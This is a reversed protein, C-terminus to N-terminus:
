GTILLQLTGGAALSDGLLTGFSTGGASFDPTIPGIEVTGRDLGGVTLEEQSLWRIKPPLGGREVIETTTKTEAGDGVHSGSWTATVVSVTHVRLGHIGPLNRYQWAVRKYRDRMQAPSAM